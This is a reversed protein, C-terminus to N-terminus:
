EEIEIYLSEHSRSAFIRRTRDVDSELNLLGKPETRGIEKLKEIVQRKTKGLIKALHEPDHANNEIGLEKYALKLAWYDRRTWPQDKRSTGLDIETRKSRQKQIIMRLKRVFEKGRGIRNIIEKKSRGDLYMRMGLSLQEPTWVSNHNVLNGHYHRVRAAKVPDKLDEGVAKLLKTRKLGKRLKKKDRTLKEKKREKRESEPIKNETRSRRIRIRM